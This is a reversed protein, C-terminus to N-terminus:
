ETQYAPTLPIPPMGELFRDRLVGLQPDTVGLHEATFVVSSTHMLFAQVENVMLEENKPDYQLDTLFQTFMEREPPTLANWFAWSHERYAPNTFYIGHSLEHRLVAARLERSVAENIPRAPDDERARTYSVVAGPPNPVIYGAGGRAIVGANLLFERFRVEDDGLPTQQTEVLTFFRALDVARYDHGFYYSHPEAGTEAMFAALEKDTLVRDRPAGAKEILTAIRNLARGQASLDPYEVVLVGPAGELASWHWDDGAGVALLQNVNVMPVDLSNAPRILFWWAATLALALTVVGTVVAAGVPGLGRRRKDGSNTDMDRDLETM